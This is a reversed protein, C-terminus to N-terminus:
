AAACPKPCIFMVGRRKIRINKDKAMMQMLGIVLPMLSVGPFLAMFVASHLLSARTRYKEVTM